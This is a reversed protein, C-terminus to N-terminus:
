LSKNVAAGLAQAVASPFGLRELELIGEITVGGPSCVRDILEWPHTGAEEMEAYLSFASGMVTKAAIETANKKKMGYKCAAMALSEIFLYSFAPGAGAIATFVPFESEGIEAAYGLAGFLALIADISGRAAYRNGCVATVGHLRRVNLNPMIRIVSPKANGNGCGVAEEVRRLETMALMSVFTKKLYAEESLDPMEKAVMPLDAPKVGIFIIDSVNVLEGCGTCGKANWEPARKLALERNKDYISLDAAFLAGSQLSGEIIAGAMNGCGIFGYRM